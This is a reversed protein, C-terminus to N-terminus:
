SSLSQQVVLSSYVGGASILSEHDGSEVIEGNKFVYIVDSDQITSLRHAVTITTREKSAKELVKQVIVESEADLASTAEDLLLIKPNRILARAIAIRQKQGGSLQSGSGGVRTNYGDPLRMVLDHINANKAATEVEFQTADPKGYTINEYISLDFLVPEQSVLAPHDRLSKLNWKRTDVEEVQVSGSEIDYLRLTLNIVTSKGSGSSGVLAVSQGPKVDFSINKLIQIEPRTPYRFGVENFSVLGNKPMPDQGGASHIDIGPVEQITNIIKEASLLAKPIAGLFQSTRGLSFSAFVIAYMTNFMGETTLGGGNVMRSGAYFITAFVLFNAGQSFAYYLGNLYLSKMSQLYVEKGNKSFTAIFVSERSLSTVTRIHIISESAAQAAQESAKMSTKVNKILGRSQKAQAFVLVPVTALIIFTLKYSRTFAIIMGTIIASASSILMPFANTGVRNIDEAESALRSTLTGTGNEKKDFFAMDQRLMSRFLEYRIKRVLKESGAGFLFTRLGITIYSVIAFVFFLLAYLNTNKKQKAHDPNNLSTLMKSFVISFTPFTAGDVIAILVGPIFIRIESFYMKFIKILPKYGSSSKQSVESELSKQDEEESVKAVKIEANPAVKEMKEESILSDTETVQKADTSIKSKKIEQARVLSSYAGELQVLESHTGSEIIAGDNVVYIKDCDKITSLRHAITIATRNKSSKDLADQVLKESETDLASTAEDLLLISPNRVLARAICIRQKQGGSLLAGREGVVTEFKDPLSEIFDLINADRCAQVIEERTPPNNEVDKAGWMINEYITTGFLVPEQSVIGINKRLSEVNYDKIDRGDITISGQSIDYFRQLLSVCTSKGSGSEGVLAINQGPKISISFNKMVVVDPRSPYSFTVNKFEIEGQLNDEIIGNETDLANISSKKDIIEFVKVAAGRASTIASVNPVAGALSFGGFMLAFFVNLVQGPSYEGDRVLKAGFWFGLAYCSYIFFFILGLGLGLATAKKFGSRFAADVKTSYRKLEKEQSNFAAVTRMSSLVETAVGGAGAYSTQVLRTFKVIFKSLIASSVVILPIVCLVVLAMKWGRVFALIIGSCFTSIYQIMFGMKEDIGDQILSVDSTIRTILDGPTIDDFWSIEQSMISKYFEERIRMAQNEAIINWIIYVLYSVVFNAVAIYVYFLCLRSVEHSLHDKAQQFKGAAVLNDHALFANLMNSVVITMMPMAVGSIVAFLSGFCLYVKERNTTFRFLQKFSVTPPKPRTPSANKSKKSLRSFLNDSKEVSPVPTLTPSNDGKKETQKTEIKPM